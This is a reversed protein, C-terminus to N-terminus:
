QTAECPPNMRCARLYNKKECSSLKTALDKQKALFLASLVLSVSLWLEKSYYNVLGIDLVALILPFILMIRRAEETGFAQYPLRFAKVFLALYIAYYLFFGPFGTCALLEFYNSHAFGIAVQSFNDLGIGFPHESALRWALKILAYRNRLSHSRGEESLDATRIIKATCLYREMLKPNNSIKIVSITILIALLLFIIAVRSPHKFVNYARFAWGAFLVLSIMGLLATRSGSQVVAFALVILGGLLLIRERPRGSTTLLYLVMFQAEVMVIGFRNADRLSGAVRVGQKAIVIDGVEMGSIPTLSVLYSMLAAIVFIYVFFRLNRSWIIISYSCLTLITLQFMTLMKYLSPVPDIAFFGIFTGYMCWLFLWILEASIYLNQIRRVMFSLLVIMWFAACIIRNIINGGPLYSLLFISFIVVVLALKEIIWSSKAERDRRISISSQKYTVM